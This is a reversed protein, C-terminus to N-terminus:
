RFGYAISGTGINKPLLQAKNAIQTEPTAKRVPASVPKLANVHRPEIPLRRGIILLTSRAWGSHCREPLLIHIIEARTEIQEVASVEKVSVFNELVHPAVQRSVSMSVAGRPLMQAAVDLSHHLERDGKMMLRLAVEHACM